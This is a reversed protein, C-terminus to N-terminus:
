EIKLKRNIRKDIATQGNKKAWQTTQGEIKIVGKTDFLFSFISYCSDLYFRPTYEPARSSNATEAGSTAGM